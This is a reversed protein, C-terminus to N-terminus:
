PLLRHRLPRARRRHVPVALVVAVEHRVPHAARRCDTLFPEVWGRLRETTMIMADGGTFLLDTIEPHAQAYAVAPAVDRISHKIGLQPKFQPWRFCYACYAHCTQGTSPFVLLTNSYKHQVGTLSKGEWTPVNHEMQGGPDASLLQLMDDTTREDNGAAADLLIQQEPGTLMDPQPFTLQFIPDHTPDTWDILHDLVYGNVKFPMVSAVAAMRDRVPEPLARLGDVGLLHRGHVTRREAETPVFPDLLGSPESEEPPFERILLQSM